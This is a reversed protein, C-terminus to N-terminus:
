KKLPEFLIIMAVYTEVLASNHTYQGLARYYDRMNAYRVIKYMNFEDDILIPTGNIEKYEYRKYQKDVYCYEDETNQIKYVVNTCRCDDIVKKCENLDKLMNSTDNIQKNLIETFRGVYKRFFRENYPEDKELERCSDFLYELRTEETIGKM